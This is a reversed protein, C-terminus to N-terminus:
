WELVKVKTPTTDETRTEEVVTLYLSCSLVNRTRQDTRLLCSEASFPLDLRTIVVFLHPPSVLYMGFACLIGHM